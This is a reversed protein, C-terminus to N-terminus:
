CHGTMLRKDRKSLQNSIRPYNPQGGLCNHGSLAEETFIAGCGPCRYKIKVNPGHALPTVTECDRPYFKYYERVRKFGFKATRQYVTYLM